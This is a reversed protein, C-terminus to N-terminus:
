ERVEEINKTIFYIQRNPAYLDEHEYGSIEGMVIEKIQRCKEMAITHCGSMIFIEPSNAQIKTIIEKSKQQVKDTQSIFSVAKDIDEFLAKLEKIVRETSYGLELVTSVYKGFLGNQVFFAIHLGKTGYKKNIKKLLPGFDDGGRELKRLTLGMQFQIRLDCDSVYEKFLDWEGTKRQEKVLEITEYDEIFALDRNKLKIILEKLKVEGWDIVAETVGKAAGKSISELPDPESSM